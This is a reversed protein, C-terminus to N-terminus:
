KPALFNRADEIKKMMDEADKVRQDFEEQTEGKNLGRNIVRDPHHIKALKRYANIVQTKSADRELGLVRLAAMEQDEPNVFNKPIEKHNHAKQNHDFDNPRYDTKRKKREYADEEQDSEESSEPSEQKADEHRVKDKLARTFVQKDISIDNKVLKTLGPQTLGEFVICDRVINEKPQWLPDKPQQLYFLNYLSELNKNKLQEDSIWGLQHRDLLHMIEIVSQSELAQFRKEGEKSSFLIRVHWDQMEKPNLHKVHEEGMAKLIRVSLIATNDFILKKSTLFMQPDQVRADLEEIAKLKDYPLIINYSM